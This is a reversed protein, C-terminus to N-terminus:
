VNLICMATNPSIGYSLLFYVFSVIIFNLTCLVFMFYTSARQKLKKNTKSNLKLKNNENKSIKNESKPCWERGVEADQAKCEDFSVITILYETNSHFYQISYLFGGVEFGWFDFERLYFLSFISLFRITCREIFLNISFYLHPPVLIISTLILNGTVFFDLRTYPCSLSHYESDQYLPLRTYPHHFDVSTLGFILYKISQKLIHHKISDMSGTFSIM